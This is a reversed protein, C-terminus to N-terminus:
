LISHVILGMAGVAQMILTLIMGWFRFKFIMPHVWFAIAHLLRGVLLMLGLVHVASAPAGQLEVCALIILGIPTYEAFNAQGRVRQRMDKSDADGLSVSNARRFAIVRFSLALFVLALLGVYLSTIPLM